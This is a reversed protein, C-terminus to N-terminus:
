TFTLAERGHVFQLPELLRVAARNIYGRIAEPVSEDILEFHLKSLLPYSTELSFRVLMSTIGLFAPWDPDSPHWEVTM